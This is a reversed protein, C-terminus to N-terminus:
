RAQHWAVILSLVSMASIAAALALAIGAAGLIRRRISSSPPRAHRPPAPSDAALRSSADM